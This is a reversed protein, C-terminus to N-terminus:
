GMFVYGTHAGGAFVCGTGGAGGVGIGGKGITPLVAYGYSEALMENVNGLDKFKALAAQCDQLTAAAQASTAALTLLAAMALLITRKM